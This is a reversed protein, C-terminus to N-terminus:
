DRVLHVYKMYKNFLLKIPTLLGSPSTFIVGFEPSTRPWPYGLERQFTRREIKRTIPTALQLSSPITIVGLHRFSLIIASRVERRHSFLLSYVSTVQITLIYELQWSLPALRFLAGTYLYSLVPDAVFFLLDPKFTYPWSERRPLSWSVVVYRLYIYSFVNNRQCM